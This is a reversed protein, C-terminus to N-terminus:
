LFCRGAQGTGVDFCFDCDPAALDCFRFCTGSFGLVPDDGFCDLGAQCEEGFCSAGEEASGPEGCLGFSGGPFQCTEGDPCSLADLLDCAGAPPPGCVGVDDAISLGRCDCGFSPFAPNCLATCVSADPQSPDLALCQTGFVCQESSCPEGPELAGPSACFTGGQDDALLCHQGSNCGAQNAVDCPALTTPDTVGLRVNVAGEGFTVTGSTTTFTFAVNSVRDNRVTFRAPNASILAARVATVGADGGSDGGLRELSWGDRLTITYPGPSLELTLAEADPDDESDLTAVPAGAREVDFTASSLRYKDVDPTVLPLRLRGLAELAPAGSGPEGQEGIVVVDDSRCASFALALAGALVFNAALARTFTLM